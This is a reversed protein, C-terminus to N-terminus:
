TSVAALLRLRPQEISFVTKEYSGWGEGPDPRLRAISNTPRIKAKMVKPVRTEGPCCCSPGDQSLHHASRAMLTRSRSEPVLAGGLVRVLGKYICQRAHRKM